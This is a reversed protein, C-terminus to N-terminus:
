ICSGPIGWGDGGVTSVTKLPVGVLVAVLGSGADESESEAGALRGARAGALFGGRAVVVLLGCAVVAAPLGGRAVVVLLCGCGVVAAPM